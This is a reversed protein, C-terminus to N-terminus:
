TNSDFIRFYEINEEMKLQDSIYYESIFGIGCAILFAGSIAILYAGDNDASYIRTSEGDSLGFAKYTGINMKVRNLHSKLLNSVFLSIAMVAFIILMAAVFFTIKGLYNFNKKEKIMGSDIQILGMQDGKLDQNFEKYIFQSISDVQDLGGEDLNISLYNDFSPLTSLSPNGYYLLRKTERIKVFQLM